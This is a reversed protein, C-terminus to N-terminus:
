IVVMCSSELLYYVSLLGQIKLLYLLLVKKNTFMCKLGGLVTIALAPLAKALNLPPDGRMYVVCM